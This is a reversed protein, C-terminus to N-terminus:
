CSDDANPWLLVALTSLLAVFVLVVFALLVTPTLGPFYDIGDRLREGSGTQVRGSECIAYVFNRRFSGTFDKWTQLHGQLGVGIPMCDSLRYATGHFFKAILQLNLLIPLFWVLLSSIWIYARGVRDAYNIDLGFPVPLRSVIWVSGHRNAHVCTLALSALWLPASLMIGYITASYREAKDFNPGPLVFHWGQTQLFANITLYSAGLTVVTWVKTLANKDM